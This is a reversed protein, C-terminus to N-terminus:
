RSSRDAHTFCNGSRYSFSKSFCQQLQSSVISDDDSFICVEIHCDSSSHKTSNTSRPLTASRGTAKDNMLRDIIFHFAPKLFCIFLQPDTVRQIYVIVYSWQNILLCYLTILLRQFFYFLLASAKNHLTSN